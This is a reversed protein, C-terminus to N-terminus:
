GLRVLRGAEGFNYKELLDTVSTVLDNCATVIFKEPLPLSALEDASIPGAAAFAAREEPSLGSLSHHIYQKLLFTRRFFSCIMISTLNLRCRLLM